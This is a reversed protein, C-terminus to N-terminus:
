SDGLIEGGFTRGKDLDAWDADMGSALCEVARDHDAQKTWGLPSSLGTDMGHDRTHDTILRKVYM